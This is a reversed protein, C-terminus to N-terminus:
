VQLSSDQTADSRTLSSGVISFRPGHAGIIRDEIVQLLFRRLLFENAGRHLARPLARGSILRRRGLIMHQESALRCIM